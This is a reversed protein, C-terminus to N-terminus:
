PIGTKAECTVDATDAAGADGNCRDSAPGGFLDDNGAGGNLTDNGGGGTHAFVFAPGPDTDTVNDGYIDDAGTGGYFVDAGGQGTATGGSRAHNDGFAFTAGGTMTFSDAGGRGSSSGGSNDGVIVTVPGTINFRDIGGNGSAAGAGGFVLMDGVVVFAGDPDTLRDANGLANITGDFTFHDGTLTDGLGVGGDVADRGGALLSGSGFLDGAAVDDGAQGLVTDVGEDGFLFDGGDGGEIRDNGTGGCIIDAGGGGFVVDNGGGAHIVEGAATGTITESANTGDIDTPFGACTLHGARAPLQVLSAAALLFIAVSSASRRTIM